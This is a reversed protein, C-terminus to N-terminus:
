QLRAIKPIMMFAEPYHFAEGFKGDNVADLERKWEDM